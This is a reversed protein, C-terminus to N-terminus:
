IEERQPDAEHEHVHRALHPSYGTRAKVGVGDEKGNERFHNGPADGHCTAPCAVLRHLPNTPPTDTIQHHDEERQAVHDDTRRQHDVM